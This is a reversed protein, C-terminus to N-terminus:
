NSATGSRALAPLDELALMKVGSFGFEKLVKDYDGAYPFPATLYVTGPQPRPQFTQEGGGAGKLGAVVHVVQRAIARAPDIFEVPWRAAAEFEKLLLPFHTCALVVMDTRRGDKEDFVPALAKEVDALRIPRGRLKDEALSALRASGVLKVDCGQAFQTVLDGTYKRRVTAPTALVSIMHSRTRRAAVKIAPVTGVFPVNSAARLPELAITSATNCALVIIDPHLDDILALVLKVIRVTLLESPWDGYPFGASDAGYYFDCQPLAKVIERYVSIGGLGSDFVLISPGSM